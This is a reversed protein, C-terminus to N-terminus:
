FISPFFIWVRILKVRLVQVRSDAISVPLRDIVTNFLMWYRWRWVVDLSMMENGGKWSLFPLVNSRAVLSSGRHIFIYDAPRSCSLKACCNSSMVISKVYFMLYYYYYYYHIITMQTKKYLLGNDDHSAIVKKNNNYTLGCQIVFFLSFSKV